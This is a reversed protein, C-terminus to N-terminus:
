RSGVADFEDPMPLDRKQHTALPRGRRRAADRAGVQPLFKRLLEGLGARGSAGVIFFSGEKIL